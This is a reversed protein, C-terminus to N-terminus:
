IGEEHLIVEKYAAIRLFMGLGKCVWFTGRDCQDLMNKNDNNTKMKKKSFNFWDLCWSQGGLGVFSLFFTSPIKASNLRM